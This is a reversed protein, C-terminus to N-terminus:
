MLALAKELLDEEANYFLAGKLIVVVDKRRALLHNVVEIDKFITANTISLFIVDPKFNLFDNELDNFELRETQYDKLLVEFGKEILSSAGYGLDNAARISTATSDEINGQSREEGRQYLKSPPYFLLIKKM